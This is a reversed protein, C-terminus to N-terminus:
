SLGGPTVAREAAVHRHRESLAKLRLMMKREMIFHAPQFVGMWFLRQVLSPSEPGLSRIV